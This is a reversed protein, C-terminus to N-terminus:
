SCCLPTGLEQKPSVSYKMVPTRGIPCYSVVAWFAGSEFTLRGKTSASSRCYGPGRKFRPRGRPGVEQLAQFVYADRGLDHVCVRARGVM